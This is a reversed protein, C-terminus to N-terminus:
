GDDGGEVTQAVTDERSKRELVGLNDIAMHSTARQDGHVKQQVRVICPHM